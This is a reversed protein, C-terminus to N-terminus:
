EPSKMGDEVVMLRRELSQCWTELVNLRRRSCDLTYFADEFPVHCEPCETM